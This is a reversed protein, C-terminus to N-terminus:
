GGFDRLGAHRSPGRSGTFELNAGRRGRRSRDGRLAPLNSILRHTPLIVLGPDSMSVLMMLIFNAAGDPHIAQPDGAARREELYKLGTEYRHHGDAIFVAKPGMLGTLRSVLQQDTVPWFRHIVGLHDTAELPPSTRVAADLITRVENDEDPFLGFVPSLNMATARFLNLRDAKPGPM